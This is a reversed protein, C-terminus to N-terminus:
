EIMDCIIRSFFLFFYYIFFLVGFSMLIGFLFFPHSLIFKIQEWTNKGSWNPRLRHTYTHTNTKKPHGLLIFICYITFIKQDFFFYYFAFSDCPHMSGMTNAFQIPVFKLFLKHAASWVLFFYGHPLYQKKKKHIKHGRKKLMIKIVCLACVCCCVIARKDLLAKMTPM